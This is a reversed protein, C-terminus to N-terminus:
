PLTRNTEANRIRCRGDPGGRGAADRGCPM